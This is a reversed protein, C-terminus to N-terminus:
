ALKDLYIFRRRFKNIIKMVIYNICSEVMNTLLRERRSMKGSKEQCAMLAMFLEGGRM